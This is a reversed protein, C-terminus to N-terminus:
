ATVTLGHQIEVVRFLLGRKVVLKSGEKQLLNVEPDKGTSSSLLQGKLVSVKSIGPNEEQAKM